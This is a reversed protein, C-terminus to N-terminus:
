LKRKIGPQIQSFERTDDLLKMEVRQIPLPQQLRSLLLEFGRPQPLRGCGRGHGKQVQTMQDFDSLPRAFGMDGVKVKLSPSGITQFHQFVTRFDWSDAFHDLFEYIMIVWLATNSELWQGVAQKSRFFILISFPIIRIPTHHTNPQWPKTDANLTQEQERWPHHGRPKKDMKCKKWSATWLIIIITIFSSSAVNVTCAM